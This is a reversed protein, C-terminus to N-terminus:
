VWKSLPCLSTPDGGLWSKVDVFCGCENCRRKKRNFSPCTACTKLREARVDATVRKNRVLRSASDLLSEAMKKADAKMETTQALPSDPSELLTRELVERPWASVAGTPLVGDCALDHISKIRKSMKDHGSTLLVSYLPTTISGLRPLWLAAM